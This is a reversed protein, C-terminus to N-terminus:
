NRINFDTSEADNTKFNSHPTQQSTKTAEDKNNKHASSRTHTKTPHLTNSMQM